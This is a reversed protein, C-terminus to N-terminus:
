VPGQTQKLICTCLNERNKKPPNPIKPSLVVIMIPLQPVKKSKPNTIYISSTPGPTLITALNSDTNTPCLDLDSQRLFLTRARVLLYVYMIWFHEHKNENQM